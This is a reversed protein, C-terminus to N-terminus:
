QPLIEFNISSSVAPGIKFLYELIEDIFADAKEWSQSTYINIFLTKWNEGEDLMELTLKAKKDLDSKIRESILPLLKLICYNSMLFNVVKNQDEFEYYHSLEEPITMKEKEFSNILGAIDTIANTKYTNTATNIKQKVWELCFVQEYYKEYFYAQATPNAYLAQTYTDTALM